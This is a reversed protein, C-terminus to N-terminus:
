SQPDRCVARAYSVLNFLPAVQKQDAPVTGEVEKLKSKDNHFIIEEGALVDAEKRGLKAIWEACAWLGAAVDYVHVTYTPNKGPSWSSFASILFNIL